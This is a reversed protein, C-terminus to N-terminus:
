MKGLLSLLKLKVTFPMQVKGAYKIMAEVPHKEMWAQEKPSELQKVTKEEIKIMVEPENLGNEVKTIKGAKHHSTFEQVVKENNLVQLGVREYDFHKAMSAFIPSANM